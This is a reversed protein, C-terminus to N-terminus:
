RKSRKKKRYYGLAALQEDTIILGRKMCESANLLVMIGDEKPKKTGSWGGSPILGPSVEVDKQIRELKAM